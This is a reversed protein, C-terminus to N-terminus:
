HLISEVREIMKEATSYGKAIPTLKGNYELLITPFSNVGLSSARYFDDKIKRKMEDSDFLNTFEDRNIGYEDLLSYYSEALHMNKNEKYFLVQSKKFFAIENEPSLQRVVIAARSPPETDYTISTSDLIKYTFEQGSREHVEDWHGTLFDKLETMVQKNYPRLGGLVLEFELQQDYEEMLKSFEPAIGYCWSCMPDGVYIIKADSQAMM